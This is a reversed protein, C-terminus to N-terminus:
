LEWGMDCFRRISILPLKSQIQVFACFGAPTWRLSDQSLVHVHQSRFGYAVTYLSYESHKNPLSLEPGHSQRLCYCLLHCKIRFNFISLKTSPAQLQQVMRQWIQSNGLEISHKSSKKNKKTLYRFIKNLFFLWGSYM